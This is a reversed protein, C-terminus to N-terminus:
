VCRPDLRVLLCTFANGAIFVGHQDGVRVVLNETQTLEIPIPGVGLVGKILQLVLPAPAAEGCMVQMAARESSSRHCPYIVPPTEENAQGIRLGPTLRNGTSRPPHRRDPAPRLVCPLRRNCQGTQVGVELLCPGRQHADGGQELAPNVFRRLRQIRTGNPAADTVMELVDEGSNSRRGRMPKEFIM